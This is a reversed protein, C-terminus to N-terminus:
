LHKLFIALKDFIQGRIYYAQSFNPSILIAKNNEILAETDNGRMEYVLGLNVYLDPFNPNVAIGKNFDAMAQDLSGQKFYAIGRGNYPRAKHPSKQVADNWLTFDNEWVKNRQYALIAYCAIILSLVVVM